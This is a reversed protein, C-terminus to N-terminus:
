MYMYTYLCNTFSLFFNCLGIEDLATCLQNQTKPGARAGIKDEWSAFMCLPFHMARQDKLIKFNEVCVKLLCRCYTLLLFTSHQFDVKHQTPLARAGIEPPWPVQFMSDIVCPRFSVHSGFTMITTM